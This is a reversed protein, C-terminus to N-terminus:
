LRRELRPSMFLPKAQSAFVISNGARAWYLSRLGYVDRGLVLRGAALDYLAFAFDGLLRQPFELGWRQYAACLFAEDPAERVLGLQEGLNEREDLRVDAVCVLGSEKDRYPIGQRVAEPTVWLARAGLAVGHALYQGAA